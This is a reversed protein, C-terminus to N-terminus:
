SRLSPMPVITLVISEGGIETTVYDGPEALDGEWCGLLWARTWLREWELRAFEPSTYREGPILDHGLAPDPAKGAPTGQAQPDAFRQVKRFVTM